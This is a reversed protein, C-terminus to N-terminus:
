KLHRRAVDSVINIHSVSVYFDHFFNIIIETWNMKLVNSKAEAFTKNDYYNKVDTPIETVATITEIQLIRTISIYYNSYLVANIM